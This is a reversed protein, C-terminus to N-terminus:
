SDALPPVMLLPRSPAADCMFHPIQINLFYFGDEVHNPIYALETITKKSEPNVEGKPNHGDGWFIRHNGLIGDDSMRDVSPIDVILHKIPTDCIVSMAGNTFFPAPHVSYKYFQKEEPNPETRIILADPKVIFWQKYERYLRDASIVSENDETAAHYRDPCDGFLQPKATILVASFLLDQLNETISGSKELLHGVCETHTGTCHINLSVEPVNCGTGESVSWSKGGTKLPNLEGPKVDYFNPQPGNFNYPISLDVFKSTDLSYKRDNHTAQIIL